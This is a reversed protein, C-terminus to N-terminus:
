LFLIDCLGYFQGDITKMKFRLFSNKKCVNLHLSNLWPVFTKLAASHQEGIFHEAGIGVTALVLIVAHCKEQVGDNGDDNCRNKSGKSGNLFTM